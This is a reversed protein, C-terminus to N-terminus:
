HFRTFLLPPPWGDESPIERLNDSSNAPELTKIQNQVNILYLLHQQLKLTLCQILSVGKFNPDCRLRVNTTTIYVKHDYTMEFCSKLKKLEMHRVNSQAHLYPYVAWDGKKHQMKADGSAIPITFDNHLVRLTDQHCCDLFVRPNASKWSMLLETYIFQSM